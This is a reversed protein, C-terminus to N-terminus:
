RALAEAPAEVSEEPLTSRIRRAPAGAMLSRPPVSGAVISHAGVVSCDGIDSGMLVTCKSALWVNRGIRVPASETNHYFFEDESTHFHRSDTVTVYESAGALPELVVREACHLTTGWSLINGQTMTLHGGGINLVVGKRLETGPGLEATGDALQITVDGDITSGPGISLRNRTGSRVTVVAAPDIRASDDITLELEAGALRAKALIQLRWRERQLWARWQLAGGIYSRVM